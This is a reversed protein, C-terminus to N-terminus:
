STASDELVTLTQGTDVQDGESVPMAAVRGDAPADVSHEMKMAEIVVLPQGASVEDGVGALVRVVKGPMPALLSGPEVDIEPVPLVPREILATSGLPSDVYVAHDHHAVLYTRRIGRWELDVLNAKAEFLFAPDGPSGNISLEVVDENLRYGVEIATEGSDFTTTNLQSANNRWGSPLTTLATADARNRAQGALAAAVAHAIVVQRDDDSACLESPPHRDLFGTDTAGSLFDAHELIGVLREPTCDSGVTM